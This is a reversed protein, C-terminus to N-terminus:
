FRMVKNRLHCRIRLYLLAIILYTLLEFGKYDLTMWFIAESRNEVIGSTELFYM